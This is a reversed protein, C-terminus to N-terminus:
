TLTMSIQKFGIHKYERETKTFNTFRAFDISVLSHRATVFVDLVHQLHSLILHVVNMQHQVNESRANNRVARPVVIYDHLLVTSCILLIILLM